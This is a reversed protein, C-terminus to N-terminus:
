PQLAKYNSQTDGPKVSLSEINQACCAKHAKYPDCFLCYNVKFHTM